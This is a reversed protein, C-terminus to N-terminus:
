HNTVKRVESMDKCEGLLGAITKQLVPHVLDGAIENLCVLTFKREAIFPHPIKLEEEQVIENGYFLIDLDIIRPGWKITEKRGIQKEIHKLTVLLETPTLSTALQVAQNLFAHQEKMGWAETEYLSSTQLINGCQAALLQKAKSLNQERNGENTGLLVYVTEM